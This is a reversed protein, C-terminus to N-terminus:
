APNMPDNYNFLDILHGLKNEAKHQENDLAKIAIIQDQALSKNPKMRWFLGTEDMNWIDQPQYSSLINQINQRSNNLIELPVSAAEGHKIYLQIHNRVKFAELWGNSVEFKEIKLYNAFWKAKTKIIEETLDQNAPKSKKTLSIDM